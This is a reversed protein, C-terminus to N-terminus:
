SLNMTGAVRFINSIMGSFADFLEIDTEQM